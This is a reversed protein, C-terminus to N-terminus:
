GEPAGLYVWPTKTKTHHMTSRQKTKQEKENGRQGSHQMVKPKLIRM